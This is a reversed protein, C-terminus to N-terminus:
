GNKHFHLHCVTADARAVKPVHKEGSDDRAYNADQVGPLLRFSFKTIGPGVIAQRTAPAQARLMDQWEWAVTLDIETLNMTLCQARLERQKFCAARGGMIAQSPQSELQELTVVTALPPADSSNITQQTSTETPLVLAPETQSVLLTCAM